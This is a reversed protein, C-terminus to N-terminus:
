RQHRPDDAHPSQTTASVVPRLFPRGPLRGFQFRSCADTYGTVAPESWTVGDDRSETVALRGAERDAIRLMM